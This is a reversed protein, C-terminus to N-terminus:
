WHLLSLSGWDWGAPKLRLFRISYASAIAPLFELVPTKVFMLVTSQGDFSTKLRLRRANPSDMADVANRILNLLVQQLAISDIQV